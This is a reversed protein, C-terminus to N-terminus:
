VIIFVSAVGLLFFIGGSFIVCLYMCLDHMSLFYCVEFFLSNRCWLYFVDLFPIAGKSLTGLILSIEWSLFRDGGSFVVVSM